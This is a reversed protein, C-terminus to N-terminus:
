EEYAVEWWYGKGNAATIYINTGDVAASYYPNAGSEIDGCAKWNPPQKVGGKYVGLGHAITQQAGTGTNVGRKEYFADGSIGVNNRVRKETGTGNDEFTGLGALSKVCVGLLNDQIIYNNSAGAAVYIDYDNDLRITNNTITFYTVGADVRIGDYSGADENNSQIENSHIRNGFSYTPDSLQIGHHHNDQIQLGDIIANDVGDLTIGNAANGSVWGGYMHLGNIVATAGAANTAKVGDYLCSDFASNCAWIWAATSGAPPDILLGYGFDMIDCDTIWTGGTKTIEIGNGTSDAVNDMLCSEIYQDNADTIKIGDHV